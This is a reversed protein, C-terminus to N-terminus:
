SYVEKLKPTIEVPYVKNKDHYDKVLFNNHTACDKLLIENVIVVNQLSRKKKSFILKKDVRVDWKPYFVFVEDKHPERTIWESM